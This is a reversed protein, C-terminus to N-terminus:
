AAGAQARTEAARREARRKKKARARKAQQKQKERQGARAGRETEISTKLHAAVFAEVADAERYGYGNIVIQPPFDLKPDAAWRKLTRKTVGLRQAVKLDRM